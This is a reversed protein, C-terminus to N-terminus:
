SLSREKRIAWLLAALASLLLWAPMLAWIRQWGLLPEAGYVWGPFGLGRCAMLVWPLALFLALLVGAVVLATPVVTHQRISQM